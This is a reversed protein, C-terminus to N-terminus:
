GHRSGATPETCTRAPAHNASCATQLWGPYKIRVPVWSKSNKARVQRSPAQCGPHSHLQSVWTTTYDLLPHLSRLHSPLDVAGLPAIGWGEQPSPLNGYHMGCHPTTITTYVTLTLHGDHSSPLTSPLLTSSFKVTSNRQSSHLSKQRHDKYWWLPTANSIQFHGSTTDRVGQRHRGSVVM